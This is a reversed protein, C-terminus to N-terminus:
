DDTSEGDEQQNEGDSEEAGDKEFTEGKETFSVDETKKNGIVGKKILIVVTVAAAAALAVVVSVVIIAILAGQSLGEGSGDGETVYIRISVMRGSYDGFGEIMVAEDYVTLGNSVYREEVTFGDAANIVEQSYDDYTILLKLGNLSFKEGTRYDTKHASSADVRVSTVRVAIGFQKKLPKLADEVAFLKDLSVQGDVWEKQADTKLSNYLAHAEKVQKSVNEVDTKTALASVASAEPLKKLMEALQYSAPEPMEQTVTKEGFYNKYVFNDYGTGNSPYRLVITSKTSANEGTDGPYHSVVKHFSDNFNDYYFSNSSFSTERDIVRLPVGNVTYVKELLTPAQISEFEYVSIGCSSFASSGITKLTHPLIIKAVRSAPVNGFAFSLISVTGEEVRYTATGDVKEATCATPYSVLEYSKDGIYRYLVGYKDAFFYKSGTSVAFKQLTAVGRFASVGVTKCSAPLTVQTLATMIFAEDGIGELGNGFTVSTLNRNEVFALYSISKVSSLNLTEFACYAFANAGIVEVNEIGMVESLKVCDFFAQDHVTKVNTLDIEELLSCYAFASSDIDKIKVGLQVNTLKSLPTRSASDYAYFTYTGTATAEGGFIATTLEPCMAFVGEGMYKVSPLTVSQLKLCEAFAEDGVATVSEPLSLSTIATGAFASAGITKVSGGWVIENLSGCNAFAGAGITTVSDPITIKKLGTGLFAYAPITTIGEPLTISELGSLNAFAGVGIETVGTLDITTVGSALTSGSYAYSGIKTIGSTLASGSVTNAARVLVGGSVIEGSISNVNQFVNNGLVPTVTMGDFIDSSLMACNSFAYDGVVHINHGNKDVEALRGCNAFAYAGINEVDSGFSVKKLSECGQFAYAPVNKCNITIEELGTCGAFMGFGLVTDNGTTVSTLSTCDAFVGIGSVFLGSIDIEELATCGAFTEDGMTGMAKWKKVTKLKTCDTFVNKDLTIVKCNRLDVTTLNTCGSFAGRHILNLSSEAVSREERDVFCIEELTKCNIFAREGITTVAKPIVVIVNHETDGFGDKFAEDGIATISKDTPITLVRKGDILEGGWGRYRTLTGNSITYPDTISFSVSARCLNYIGEGEVSITVSKAEDGEYLISVNGNQDVTALTEDDSSWNFKIKDVPFYWPDCNLTLKIQQAPNVRIINDASVPVDNYNLVTGLKVTPSAKLETEGEVKVVLTKSAQYRTGNDEVYGGRVTITTTGERVGFIEGNKVAVVTPRESIWDFNSINADGLGSLGLKVAQNKAITIETIEKGNQTIAFDTTCVSATRAHSMDIWYMNSNLAYDDLEIFLEDQYSNYLDTIEISVTNITNKKPNIIPIIYDTALKIKREGDSDEEDRYCLLVAQPYHNDFVDLDLYVKQTDKNDVKRDQFRIRSDVLIPAEYDVYFTMAFTDDTNKGFNDPDFDKHDFFFEFELSYKGNGELGLEETRLELLVQAPTTSGGSSHAKGVRYVERVYNGNADPIIEGTDENKLRYAVLEANRLLGAYLAKVGTTTMYNDANSEGHYENFKSIAGHEMDTYVYDATHEKSEPQTYVYSGIPLVYKENYYYSYAQSAWVSAQRRQEDKLSADKADAAVEYCDLDLMPAAKWDGYFGMFPLTLDCQGESGSKLQLFGEVFMGNKFNKELDRMESAKLQLTVEIKVDAGANVTFEGGNAVPSGAVKWTADSEDFLSAKEAVSKGDVGLTETMFISKTNFKLASTGFNKVYFTIKYEGKKSRKGDDGLEAKPRGDECMYEPDATNETDKTYLFANTEFVNALTALGAGQKRPSYPLSNQDYVLTATSMMINNTVKTLSIDDNYLFAKENKVYGKALATFGSLNPCAMSTGSMEEYGGAVTSTIEGGHSTIDPKLQLTPTTGWSSYDNMFPGATFNRSLTIYGTDRRNLGTGTLALGAEMSVSVSPLHIKMDGLSMRIMGSVNNYVIVGDAKNDYATKIKASFNTSGRRIVAIWRKGEAKIKDIHKKATAYDASEGVGPIVVYGFTESEKINEKDHLGMKDHYSYTCYPDDCGLLDNIFNYADSDENRSEEYYIADGGKYTGNEETANALLYSSQQGNISAVSMAGEFTSPSGITGSDPNSALNTGFAGGYAASFENSAAVMLTIGAKRIDSYVKKMSKGEEDGRIGLAESSFGCSTGLSMNIIDVGLNVCDELAALITETEAGNLSESDLNDTFVKCIVLQAEPAVGRFDEDVRNGNKDDYHDDKGAVIGAVHTGHQSFSPYVNADNDAYDYAFPVKDSVWVDNATAGSRSTAAFTKENMKNEVDQKKLATAAIDLGEGQFASHTYDLGTDLIAVTMGAGDYGMDVYKSSDYIGTKYINSYNIQAGGSNEATKPYAYTTSVFASSVGSMQTIYSYNALNVEIAVGNLVTYYNNKLTYNIGANDLESLFETQERKLRALASSSDTGQQLLSEGKLSVIVTRTEGVVKAVTNNELVQKSMNSLKIDTLDLKGNTENAAAFEVQRVDDGGNAVPNSGDAFALVQGAIFTAGMVATLGVCALRRSLGGKFKTKM